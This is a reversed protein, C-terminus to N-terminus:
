TANLEIRLLRPLSALDSQIIIEAHPFFRQALRTAADGQGAEIELLMLGHPALLRPAQALLRSIASLGDQGGDLALSPERHYLPLNQLTATPIYPLNACILDFSAHVGSLLDARLLSVRDAVRWRTANVAAVELAKTSFDTAVVQLCPQKHALTVAICGSGTGVDVVRQRSPYASLWALASEVLLETEPRPILVHPTLTFDLGFFERHGLVYPLPEGSRLRALAAEFAQLQSASLLAEPHAVVWSRPRKVLEAILVQADLSPTDSLPAIQRHARELAGSLTVSGTTIPSHQSSM